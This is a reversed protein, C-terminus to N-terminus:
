RGRGRRCRTTTRSTGARPRAAPTAGPASRTAAAALRELPAGWADLKPSPPPVTYGVYLDVGVDGTAWKAFREAFREQATGCAGSIGQECGWGAPIGGQLVAMDGDAVRAHDHGLERLVVRHIGARGTAGPSGRWDVTV